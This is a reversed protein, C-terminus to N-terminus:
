QSVMGELKDWLAKAEPLVQPLCERCVDRQITEQGIGLRVIFTRPALDEFAPVDVVRVLGTALDQMKQKGKRQVERPVEVMVPKGAKDLKPQKTAPDVAPVSVMVTDMIPKVPPNVQTPKGCIDCNWKVAM